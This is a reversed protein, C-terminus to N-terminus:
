FAFRGGTVPNTKSVALFSKPYLGREKSSEKSRNPYNESKLIKEEEKPLVEEKVVPAPKNKSELYFYKYFLASSIAVLGM